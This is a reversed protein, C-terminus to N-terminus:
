IPRVPDVGPPILIMQKWGLADPKAPQSAQQSAPQRAPQSAPPNAPQSAPQSAPQNAPQRTPQSAPPSAPQYFKKTEIYIYIYIYINWDGAGGEGRPPLPPHTPPPAPSQFRGGWGGPPFHEQHVAKSGAGVRPSSGRLGWDGGAGGGRPTCPSKPNMCIYTYIAPAPHPRLPPHVNANIASQKWRGDM